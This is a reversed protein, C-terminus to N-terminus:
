DATKMNILEGRHRNDTDRINEYKKYHHSSSNYNKGKGNSSDRNKRRYDKDRYDPSYSRSRSRSRNRHYDRDRHYGLFISKIVKHKYNRQAELITKKTM